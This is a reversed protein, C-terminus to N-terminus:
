VGHSAESIDELREKVGTLWKKMDGRTCDCPDGAGILGGRIPVNSDYKLIKSVPTGYGKDMVKLTEGIMMGGVIENTMIVSPDPSNTCKSGQLSLALTKEVDLKCQLCSSMGPEYVVVQGSQSNTGGSVLPIGYRVAFYNILARTAFNDVCDLIVDPRNKEFYITNEDLKGVLSRVEAHPNIERVKAALAEAKKRGVADYFLIQRNLNHAEVEDFDLIDINGIGELAAGLATFNGLAGAGVILIRKESINEYPDAEFDGERAFRREATGQYALSKVPKEGERLPMLSKRVEETIMGAMIESSFGGQTSGAYDELRASAPIEGLTGLYFAGGTKGNSASIIPIGYLSSIGISKDKMEPSNTLDLLIDPRNQTLNLETDFTGVKISSSPNMQRLKSELDRPEGGLPTLFGQTKEGQPIYVEINGIGLAALSAATFHTLQAGGILIARAKTLKSQDWNQIREQRDYRINKEIM